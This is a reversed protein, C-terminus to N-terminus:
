SAPVVMVPKKNRETEELVISAAKNLESPIDDTTPIIVMSAAFEDIAKLIEEDPYGPRMVESAQVGRADLQQMIEKMSKRTEVEVKKLEAKESIGYMNVPVIGLLVVKSGTATAERIIQEIASGANASSDVPVLITGPVFIVPCSAKRSLTKYRPPSLVVDFNEADMYGLIEAEPEGDAEEIKIWSGAGHEEIIKKAEVLHRAAEARAMAEANPGAGYDVFMASHFLHLLTARGGEEKLKGIGYRLASKANLTGDYAILIRM